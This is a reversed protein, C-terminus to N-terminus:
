NSGTLLTDIKDAAALLNRGAERMDATNTFDMAVNGINTVLTLNGEIYDGFEDINDFRDIGVNFSPEDMVTTSWTVVTELTGHAGDPEIEVKTQWAPKAKEIAEAHLDSLRATDIREEEEERLRMATRSEFTATRTDTDASRLFYIGRNVATVAGMNIATNVNHKFRMVGGDFTELVTALAANHEKAAARELQVGTENDFFNVRWIANYGSENAMIEAVTEEHLDDFDYDHQDNCDDWFAHDEDLLYIDGEEIPEFIVPSPAISSTNMETEKYPNTFQGPNGGRAEKKETTTM